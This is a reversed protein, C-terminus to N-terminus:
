HNDSVSQSSSFTKGRNLLSRVWMEKKRDLFAGKARRTKIQKHPILELHDSTHEEESFFTEWAGFQPSLFPLSSYAFLGSLLHLPLKNQGINRMQDLMRIVITRKSQM